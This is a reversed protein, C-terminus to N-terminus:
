FTKQAVGRIISDTETESPPASVCKAFKVLFLSPFFFFLLLSTLNNGLLREIEGGSDSHIPPLDPANQSQWLQTHTHTRTRTRTRAHTRAHTRADRERQTHM